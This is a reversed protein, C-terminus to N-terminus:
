WTHSYFPFLEEGIRNEARRGPYVSKDIMIHLIIYKLYYNWTSEVRRQHM